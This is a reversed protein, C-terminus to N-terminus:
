TRELLHLFSNKGYVTYGFVESANDLTLLEGEGSGYMCLMRPAPDVLLIRKGEGEPFDFSHNTHFSAVPMSVIRASAVSLGGWNHSAIVRFNFSYVFRYVNNECLIVLGRRYRCNAFAVKYTVDDKRKGGPHPADTVTLGFVVRESLVSLYPSGHIEFSLEGRERMRELKKIFRRRDIMRRISRIIFLWLFLVSAIILIPKWLLRLIGIIFSGWVPILTSYGAFILVYLSAFFIVAYFIRRWLKTKKSGTRLDKQIIWVAARRRIRLVSLGAVLLLAIAGGVAVCEGSRMGTYRLSPVLSLTLVPTASLVTVALGVAYAPDRLLNPATKEDKFVECFRNFSRDDIGDYYRWLAVFLAIVTAPVVLSILAATVSGERVILELYLLNLLSGVSKVTVTALIWLQLACLLSKGAHWAMDKLQIKTVIMVTGGKSPQPVSDISYCPIPM